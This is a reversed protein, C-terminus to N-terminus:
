LGAAHHLLGLMQFKEEESDSYLSWVGGDKFEIVFSFPIAELAEYGESWEKLGRVIGPLDVKELVIHTENPHRYFYVTNGVFKYFMRKWVHADGRQITVWGTLIEAAKGNKTLKKEALLIKKKREEEEMKKMAEARRAEEENKRAQETRWSELRQHEELRRQRDLRKKEELERRTRDEEEKEMREKRRREAKGRRMEAEISKRRELEEEEEQRRFDEKQRKLLAQRAEEARLAEYEEKERQKQAELRRRAREAPDFFGSTDHSAWKGHLPLPYLQAPKRQPFQPEIVVIDDTDHGHSIVAFESINPHEREISLLGKTVDSTRSPQSSHVHAHRGEDKPPIPPPADHPDKVTENPKKKRRLLNSFISSGAKPPSRAIPPSNRPPSAYAESFSRQVVDTDNAKPIPLPKSSVDASFSRGMGKVEIDEPGSLAKHIADLTLQSLNDVTLTVQNKKFFIGVRRSHVLARARKVGSVSPPIYNILVYIPDLDVEERYFAIFVEDVDYIKTKLEELGDMGHSYLALDEYNDNAFHLLLWNFENNIISEYAATLAASDSM